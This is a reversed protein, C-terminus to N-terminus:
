KFTLEPAQRVLEEQFLELAEDLGISKDEALGPLMVGETTDMILGDYKSPLRTAKVTSANEVYWKKGIDQTGFWSNPISVYVPDEYYAKVPVLRQVLQKQAYAGDKSYLWQLFLWALEKNESRQPIALSTGGWGFAGGPPLMLGWRGSEKGSPDNLQVVYEPFWPPCGYFIHSEDAFSQNWEPSWQKLADVIGADRMKLTLEYAPRIATSLNVTTGEAMPVSSQGNVVRHVDALSPFMFVTGNTQKQVAVGQAIFDDWTPFMSELKAPDDTGFYKQTLDRRYCLGGGLGYDWRLAVVAGASNKMSPYINEYVTSPDFNYPAADLREWADMELFEGAMQAEIWFVDPMTDGTAYASKFKQAVEPLTGIQVYDLKINPYVKNFEPWLKDMLPKDWAWMHITGSYQTAEATAPAAPTPQTCGSLAQVLLLCIVGWLGWNLRGAKPKM